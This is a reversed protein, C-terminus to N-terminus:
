IHILSLHVDIGVGDLGDMQFDAEARAHTTGGLKRAQGRRLLTQSSPAARISSRSNRSLSRRRISSFPSEARFISTYLLCDIYEFIERLYVNNNKLQAFLDFLDTVASVFKAVTGTYLVFNGIGFAGM